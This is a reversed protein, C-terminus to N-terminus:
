GGDPPPPAIRLLERVAAAAGAPDYARLNRVLLSAAVANDPERRLIERLVPVARRPQAAATFLVARVELPHVDPSFDDAKRLIRDAEDVAAPTYSGPPVLARADDELRVARLTVLLCGAVVLAAVVLAIRALV